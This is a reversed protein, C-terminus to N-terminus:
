RSSFVSRDSARGLLAAAAGIFLVPVLPLHYRSQAEYFQHIGWLYALLAILPWFAVTSRCLSDRVLGVVFLSCVFVWAVNIVLKALSEALPDWRDASVSAMVTTSTGWLYAAKILVLKGFRRPHEAIQQWAQRWLQHDREAENSDAQVPPVRCSLGTSRPNNAVWLGVGGCTTVPVFEGFLRYNRITWPAIVLGLFTTMVITNRVSRSVSTGRRWYSLGFVVPLLLGIPKIFTGTGLLAGIGAVAGLREASGRQM